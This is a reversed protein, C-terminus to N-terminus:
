SYPEKRPMEQQKEGAEDDGEELDIDAEVWEDAEAADTDYDSGDSSADHISDMGTSLYILIMFKTPTHMRSDFCCVKINNNCWQHWNLVVGERKRNENERWQESIAEGAAHHYLTAFSAFDLQLPQCEDFCGCVVDRSCKTPDWSHEGCSFCRKIMEYSQGIQM